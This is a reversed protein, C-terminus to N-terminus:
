VQPKGQLKANNEEILRRVDDLTFPMQLTHKMAKREERKQLAKQVAPLGVVIGLIVLGLYIDNRLDGIRGELGNRLDGMRAELGDMRTSLVSVVRALENIDKHQAKLEERQAKQEEKFERMQELIMDLKTNMSQQHAEYVDKRVYVSMDESVAGYCMSSMTLLLLCMTIIKHM